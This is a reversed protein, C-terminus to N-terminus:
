NAEYETCSLATVVSIIASASIGFLDHVSSTTSLNQSWLPLAPPMINAAYQGQNLQHSNYIKNLAQAYNSEQMVIFVLNAAYHYQRTIRNRYHDSPLVLYGTLLKDSHVHDFPQFLRCIQGYLICLTATLQRDMQLVKISEWM